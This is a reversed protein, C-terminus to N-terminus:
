IPSNVILDQATLPNKGENRHSELVLNLRLKHSTIIDCKQVTRIESQFFKFAWEGLLDGYTQFNCQIWYILFGFDFNNKKSSRSLFSSPSLNQHDVIAAEFIKVETHHNM